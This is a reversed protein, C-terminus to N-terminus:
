GRQHCRRWFRREARGVDQSEGKAPLGFPREHIHRGPHAPDVTVFGSEWGPLPFWDLDTIQGLPGRSAIAFTGSDQKSGYIWYPYRNDTAIKDIEATKQNYWSSWTQGGDLSVSAGQDGGYVIHSPDAPDIWWQNPDDGGPAGKFAVLTHGGDTSRYVCTGM